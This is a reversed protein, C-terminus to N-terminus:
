YKLLIPHQHNICDSTTAQYVRQKKKNYISLFNFWLCM